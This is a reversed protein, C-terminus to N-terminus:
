KRGGAPVQEARAQLVAVQPARWPGTIAYRLNLLGDFGPKLVKDALLMTAGLAPGGALTGAIALPMGLQPTIAAALDLDHRVLGVRGKLRVGLAPGTLTLHRIDVEGRALGAQGIVSDFALGSKALDSFDLKLRRGLSDLSFLGLLRGLGPNIQTLRGKGIAIKLTGSLGAETATRPGGPWHVQMHVDTAARELRVPIGLADLTTGLANSHADITLRTGEDRPERRWMGHAQLTYAPGNLELAQLAYGKAVPAASLALKGYRHGALWLNAVTLELPPLAQPPLNDPLTLGGAAPPSATSKFLRLRQLMVRIPQDPALPWQMQGFLDPGNFRVDYRGGASQMQLTVPGFRQRALTLNDFQATLGQFENQPGVKARAKAVSGYALALSTQGGEGGQAVLRVSRKSVATKGLPLPLAIDTGRLDSSVHLRFREREGRPLDLRVQWRSRGNVYGAPLSAWHGILTALSLRGSARVQLALAKTSRLDATLPEGNLRLRLGAARVGQDTFHVSGRVGTFRLGLRALQLTDDALRLTGKVRNEHREDLPITLHLGLTADGNMRLSKLRNGLGSRLPTQQVFDLMGAVTGAVAGSVILVPNALDDITARVAHLRGDPVHGSAATIALSSGHFLVEARLDDIPPWQPAYSLKMDSVQGRVEFRGGGHNFPFDAARGYVVLHGSTVRGGTLAQDFWKVLKPKLLTAPLYAPIRAVDLNRFAAQLHLLPTRDPALQLSGSIYTDLDANALHLDPAVRWGDATKRWRLSGQLTSLRVPSRLWPSHVNVTGGDFQLEGANGAWRFRGGLGSAGPVNHWPRSTLGSFRGQLQLQQSRSRYSFVLERLKGSPALGDLTVRATPSLWPDLLAVLQAVHMRALRGRWQGAGSTLSIVSSNEVVGQPNRGSLRLRWNWGTDNRSGALAYQWDPLQRLWKALASYAPKDPPVPAQVRGRVHLTSPGSPQWHGVLALDLRGAVPRLRAPLPWVAPQLGWGQLEFAARWSARRQPSGHLTANVHLRQSGDPGALSGNLRRETGEPQLKLQLDQGLLVSGAPRQLWLQHFAVDLRDVTFLRSLLTQLDIAAPLLSGSQPLSLTRGRVVVHSWVLRGGLLSKLLDLRARLRVGRGVPATARGIQLGDLELRPQWDQWDLSLAAIRVPQRLYGGLVWAVAERGYGTVPSMLRLLLVAAIVSLLALAVVRLGWRATVRVFRM